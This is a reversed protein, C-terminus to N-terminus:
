ANLDGMSPVQPIQANLDGMGPVQPIQPIQANLDGMGPVQPIQPIQANLDPVKPIEPIKSGLLGKVFGGFGKKGGIAPM